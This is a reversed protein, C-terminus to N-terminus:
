KESLKSAALFKKLEEKAEPFSKAWFTRLVKGDQHLPHGQVGVGTGWEDQVIDYFRPMDKPMLRRFQRWAAEVSSARLTAILVMPGRVPDPDGAGHELIEAVDQGQWVDFNPPLM